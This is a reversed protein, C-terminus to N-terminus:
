LSASFDFGLTPSPEQIYFGRAYDVGLQWLVALSSAEEVNEAITLKGMSHATEILSRVTAQKQTEQALQHVLAGNIKVYDVPLHRLIGFSNTGQGFHALAFQAHLAKANRAFVKAQGLHTTASVESVEFVFRDGPVKESRLLDVLWGVLSEDALTEDSLKILLCLHKGKARQGVVASAAHTIVWRDLAPTLHAKAAAAMFQQPLVPQDQADLMRVLVEYLEMPKGHLSVVPQFYLRFRDAQLAEQIRQPWERDQVYETISPQDVEVRNGGQHRARSCASDAALLVEQASAAGAGILSLGISCTLIVTQQDVEFVHEEIGQRLGEALARVEDLRDNELLVCFTEDGFRAAVARQGAADRLLAAADALVLDSEAIGIRETVARFGDLAVYLVSGGTGPGSAGAFAREVAKIFHQRNYLGTLPDLSTLRALEAESSGAVSLDRLVLQICPEGEFTARSLAFAATFPTGDAHLARLEARADPKDDRSFRRLLDKLQNHDETSIMDLLPIGAMEGASDFGFMELYVANAYVHMGDLIYAVADRSSDILARARQECEGLAAEYQRRARREAAGEIERRVAHALREAPQVPVVDRAGYALAEVAAPNAPDDSLVLLPIGRGVHGLVSAIQVLEMNAKALVLEWASGREQLSAELGAVTDMHQCRVNLGASELAETLPDADDAADSLLLLHIVPEKAM